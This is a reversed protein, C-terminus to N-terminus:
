KRSFEGSLRRKIRDRLGGGQIKHAEQDKLEHVSFTLGIEDDFHWDDKPNLAEQAKLLADLLPTSNPSSFKPNVLILYKIKDEDPFMLDNFSSNTFSVIKARHKKWFEVIAEAFEPVYHFTSGEFIFRNFYDVIFWETKGPEFLGDKQLSNIVYGEVYEFFDQKNFKALLEANEDTPLEKTNRFRSM